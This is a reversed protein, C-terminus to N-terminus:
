FFKGVQVWSEFIEEYLFFENGKVDLCYFKGSKLFIYYVCDDYLCGKIDYWICNGINFDVKGFCLRCQVCLDWLVLCLWYCEECM